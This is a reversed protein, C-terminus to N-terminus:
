PKGVTRRRRWWNVLSLAGGATIALCLTALALALVLWLLGAVGAAIVVFWAWLAWLALGVTVFSALHFWADLIHGAWGNGVRTGDSYIAFVPLPAFVHYHDGDDGRDPEAEPPDPPAPEDLADRFVPPIGATNDAV